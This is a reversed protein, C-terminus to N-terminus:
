LMERRTARAETRDTTNSINNLNKMRCLYYFNKYLYIAFHFNDLFTM